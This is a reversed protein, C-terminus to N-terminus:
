PIVERMQEGLSSPPSESGSVVKGLNAPTGGAVMGWIRFLDGPERGSRRRPRGSPRDAAGFAGTTANRQQSAGRKISDDQLALPCRATNRARARPKGVLFGARDIERHDTAVESDRSSAQCRLASMGAM